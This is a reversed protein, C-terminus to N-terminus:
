EVVLTGARALTSLIELLSHVGRQLWIGAWASIAAGRVLRAVLVARRRLTARPRPSRSPFGFYGAFLADRSRLEAVSGVKRGVRRNVTSSRVIRGVIFHSWVM